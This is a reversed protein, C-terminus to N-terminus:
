SLQVAAKDPQIFTQHRLRNEIVIISAQDRLDQWIALALPAFQKAPEQRMAEHTIAIPRRSFAVIFAGNFTQNPLSGGIM